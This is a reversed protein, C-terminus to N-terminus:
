GELEEQSVREDEGEFVEALHQWFFMKQPAFLAMGEPRWLVPRMQSAVQFSVFLFLFIWATLGKGGQKRAAATLFRSALGVTILWIAFHLMVIFGLSRSSVSFLWTVPMLAVLLLGLRGALGVVAGALWPLSVEVGSLASFVYFSPLCLALSAVIIAPGKFATVLIQGGGQFFGSVLGYLLFCFVAGVAVRLLYATDRRDARRVVWEPRRLLEDLAALVGRPTAPLEHAGTSEEMSDQRTAEEM